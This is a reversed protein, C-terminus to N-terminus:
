LDAKKYQTCLKLITNQVTYTSKHCSVNTNEIKSAKVNVENPSKKLLLLLHHPCLTQMELLSSPVCMLCTLPYKLGSKGEQIQRIGNYKQITILYMYLRM